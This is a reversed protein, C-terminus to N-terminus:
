FPLIPVHVLNDIHIHFVLPQLPAACEVRYKLTLSALKREQTQGQRGITAHSLIDSM